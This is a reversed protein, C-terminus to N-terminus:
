YKWVASPVCEVHHFGAAVTLELAQVDFSTTAASIRLSTMDFSCLYIVSLGGGRRRDARPLHVIHYGDPAADHAIADHAASAMWSECIPLVDKSYEAIFDHLLAAKHVM